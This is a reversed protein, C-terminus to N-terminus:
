RQIKLHDNERLPQELILGFTVLYFQGIIFCVGTDQMGPTQHSLNLPYAIERGAATIHQGIIPFIPCTMRLSVGLSSPTLSESPLTTTRFCDPAEKRALISSAFSVVFLHFMSGFLLLNM